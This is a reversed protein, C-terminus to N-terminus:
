PEDDGEADSDPAATPPKNADVEALGAKKLLVNMAPIDNQQMKKWRAALADLADELEKYAANAQTTPAADASDAVGLLTNFHQNLTSFNEPQKGSAPLGFFASQTAGELEGVQKDLAAISEAVAGKAKGSRDKLQARLSRVQQLAEYSENMGEVAGSQM